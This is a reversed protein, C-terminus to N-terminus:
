FPWKGNVAGFAAPKLEAFAASVIRHRAVRVYDRDAASLGVRNTTKGDTM